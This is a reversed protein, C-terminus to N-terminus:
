GYRFEINLLIKLDWLYKLRKNHFNFVKLGFRHKFDEVLDRLNGTGGFLLLFDALINEVEGAAVSDVGVGVLGTVYDHALAGGGTM